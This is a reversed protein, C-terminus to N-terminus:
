HSSNLRTSKRDESIYYRGHSGRSIANAAWGLGYKEGHDNVVGLWSQDIFQYLGTASSTSARANPNFGSEIKAQNFLYNFDVGTQRSAMAIANTVRNGRGAGAIDMEGFASM